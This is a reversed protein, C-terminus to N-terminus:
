KSIEPHMEPSVPLVAGSILLKSVTIFPLYSCNQTCHKSAHCVIQMVGKWLLVYKTKTDSRSITTGKNEQKEEFWLDTCDTWTTFHFSDFEKGDREQLRESYKKSGRLIRVGPECAHSQGNEQVSFHCLINRKRRRHEKVELKEAIGDRTTIVTIKPLLQISSSLFAPGICVRTLWRQVHCWM